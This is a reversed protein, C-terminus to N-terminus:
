RSVMGAADGVLLARSAAVPSAIGGVPIMGARVSAPRKARYDFFPSIKELFASMAADPAPQADRVRRALGVQVVGVGFLM